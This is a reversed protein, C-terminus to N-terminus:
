RKMEEDMAEITALLLATAKVLDARADESDTQAAAKHLYEVALLHLHFPGGELDHEATYGKAIQREREALIESIVRGRSVPHDYADGFRHAIFGAM